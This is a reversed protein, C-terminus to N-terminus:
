AIPPARPRSSTLHPRAQLPHPPLGERAERTLVPSAQHAEETASWPSSGHLVCISHDHGGSGAPHGEAQLSPLEGRPGADLLPVSLALAGMTMAIPLALGRRMRRLQHIM